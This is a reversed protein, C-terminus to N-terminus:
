FLTLPNNPSMRAYLPLSHLHKTAKNKQKTLCAICSTWKGMKMKPPGVTSADKMRIDRKVSIKQAPGAWLDDGPGEDASLIKPLGAGSNKRQRGYFIIVYKAKVSRINQLDKELIKKSCEGGLFFLETRWSRGIDPEQEIMERVWFIMLESRGERFSIWPAEM